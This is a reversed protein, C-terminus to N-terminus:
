PAEGTEEIQFPFGDISAGRREPVREVREEFNREEALRLVPPMYHGQVDVGLQGGAREAQELTAWASFSHSVGNPLPTGVVEFVSPRLGPDHHRLHAGEVFEPLFRLVGVHERSHRQDRDLLDAVALRYWERFIWLVRQVANTGESHPMDDGAGPYASVEGL